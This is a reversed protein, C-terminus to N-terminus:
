AEEKQLEALRNFYMGEINRGATNIGKIFEPLRIAKQTQLRKAEEYIWNNEDIRAAKVERAVHQNIFNFLDDRLGGITGGRNGKVIMQHLQSKLDENTEPNTSPMVIKEPWNDDNRRSM